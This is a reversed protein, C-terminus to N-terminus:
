KQLPGLRACRLFRWALRVSGTVLATGGPALISMRSVTATRTTGAGVFLSVSSSRTKMGICSCNPAPRGSGFIQADYNHRVGKGDTRPVAASGGEAIGPLLSKRGIRWTMM